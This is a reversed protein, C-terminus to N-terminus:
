NSVPQSTSKSGHNSGSSSSLPERSSNRSIIETNRQNSVQKNSVSSSTLSQSKVSAASSSGDKIVSDEGKEDRTVDVEIAEDAGEEMDEEVSQDSVSESNAPSGNETLSEDGHSESHLNQSNCLIEDGHDDQNVGNWPVVRRRQEQLENREDELLKNM